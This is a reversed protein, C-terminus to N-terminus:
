IINKLQLGYTKAVEPDGFYFGKGRDGQDNKGFYKLDFIDFDVNTGHANNQFEAQGFVNNPTRENFHQDRLAQATKMDGEKVAKM